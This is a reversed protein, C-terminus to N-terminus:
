RGISFYAIPADHVRLVLRKWVIHGTMKYTEACTSIVNSKALGDSAPVYNTEVPPMHDLMLHWM